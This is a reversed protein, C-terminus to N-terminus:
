GPASLLDRELRRERGVEALQALAGAVSPRLLSARPMRAGARLRPGSGRICRCESGGIGGRESGAFVKAPPCRSGPGPGACPVLGLAGQKKGRPSWRAEGTPRLPARYRFMEIGRPAPGSILRTM